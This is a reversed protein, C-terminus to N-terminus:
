KTCSPPLPYEDKTIAHVFHNLILGIYMIHSNPNHSPHGRIPFFTEYIGNEHKKLEIAIKNYCTSMIYGINLLALWKEKLPQTALICSM